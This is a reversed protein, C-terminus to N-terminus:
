LFDSHTNNMFAKYQADSVGESKLMVVNVTSNPYKREYEKKLSEGINTENYDEDPAEKGYTREFQRNDVTVQFTIILKSM